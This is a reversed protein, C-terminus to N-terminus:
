ECRILFEDRQLRFYAGHNENLRWVWGQKLNLFASIGPLDNAMKTRDGKDVTGFVFGSIALERRIKDVANAAEFISLEKEQWLAAGHQDIADCPQAFDL